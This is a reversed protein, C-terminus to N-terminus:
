PQAASISHGIRPPPLRYREMLRLCREWPMDTSSRSRRHLWQQWIRRVGQEVQKLWLGHGTIGDYAFHGQLQRCREQHPEAVPLPRHHRCWQAIRKVGRSVRQQAPQQKGIGKGRHSKGWYHTFGLSDCTGPKNGQTAGPRGCAVRRTTDPHVTLGYKGLRKPLVTGVKEADERQECGMVVDDACRCMCARGRLRPLVEQAVWLDLVSHLSVNSLWPSAAGGQPTGTEPHHRVGQEGVGAKRWKGIRRTIVGDRVRHQLFSRLHAQDVTDFLQALDVDLIWQVRGTMCPSWLAKRAGHASRGPRVGYSGDLFDQASIPELLRAVARHLLKDAPTPIGLPRIAKGTGTPIPVRRVPPAFSSGSQARDRLLPRNTELDQGDEAVTQGEHGPASDTRLRRSAERLWDVDLSPHL